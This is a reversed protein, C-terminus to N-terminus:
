AQGRGARASRALGVAGAVVGALSVAQGPTLWRLQWMPSDGRFFEVVFRLTGYGILYLWLLQGDRTKHRDALLLVATLAFLGASSYLQTPHLPIPGMEANAPSLQSHFSVAWPLDCPKGYCCGNLFCGIRGFAHGLSVGPIIIDATRAVSMGRRKIFIVGAPVALALGGYFALGGEWVKLIRVPDELYYPLDLLVHALRAGVLGMAFVFVGLDVIAQPDEGCRAARLRALTVGALVGIAMLVGYSHVTLPGISFLDPHM